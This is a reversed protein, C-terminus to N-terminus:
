QNNLKDIQTKIADKMKPKLKGINALAWELYNKDKIESVKTNSYKGFYFTPEAYPINKIFKGCSCTAVNQGSKMETTYENILGCSKCIIDEM